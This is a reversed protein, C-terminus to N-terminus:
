NLLISHLAWYALALRSSSFPTGGEAVAGTFRPERELWSFWRDWLIIGLGIKMKWSRGDLFSFLFLVLSRFIPSFLKTRPAGM